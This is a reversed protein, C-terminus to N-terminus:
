YNKAPSYPAPAHFRAAEPKGITTPGGRHNVIGLPGAFFVLVLALVVVGALLSALLMWILGVNQGGKAKTESIHV